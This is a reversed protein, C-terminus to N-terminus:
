FSVFLINPPYLLQFTTSKAIILVHCKKAAYLCVLRSICLKLSQTTDDYVYSFSSSSSLSTCATWVCHRDSQILLGEDGAGLRHQLRPRHGWGRHTRETSRPSTAIIFTLRTCPTACLHPLLSHKWLWSNTDATLDLHVLTSRMQMLYVHEAAMDYLLWVLHSIIMRSCSEVSLHFYMPPVPEFDISFRVSVKM